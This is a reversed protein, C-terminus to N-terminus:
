GSDNWDFIGFIFSQPSNDLDRLERWEEHSCVAPLSRMSKERRERSPFMREQPFRDDLSVSDPHDLGLSWSSSPSNSYLNGSMNFRWSKSRKPQGLLRVLLILSYNLQSEVKECRKLEKKLAVKKDIYKEEKGQPNDLNSSYRLSKNINGPQLPRETWVNTFLFVVNVHM